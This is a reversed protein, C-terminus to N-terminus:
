PLLFTPSNFIKSVDRIKKEKATLKAPGKKRSPKEAPRQADTVPPPSPEKPPASPVVYSPEAFTIESKTPTPPLPPLIEKLSRQTREVSVSSDHEAPM